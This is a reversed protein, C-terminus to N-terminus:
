AALSDAKEYNELSIPLPRLFHILTRTGDSEAIELVGSTKDKEGLYTVREPNQINHTQHSKGEGVMIEITSKQGRSEYTVGMLPLGNDLIQDGISSNLVEIKTAWAFRRKSLQGLFLEWNKGPIENTM